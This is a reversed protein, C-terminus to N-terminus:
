WLLKCDILTLQTSLTPIPFVGWHFFAYAPFTPYFTTSLSFSGLRFSIPLLYTPYFTASLPFSGLQFSKLLLCPPYFTASISFSGLLHPKSIRACTMVSDHPSMHYLLFCLLFVSIFMYFDNPSSLTEEFPPRMHAFCM